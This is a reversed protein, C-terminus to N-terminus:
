KGFHYSLGVTFERPDGLNYTYGYTSKAALAAYYKNFANLVNVWVDFRAITYGTRFNFVDFGPYRGSNANDLYYSGQHQWEAGIRFGKLFAPKYMLETNATFHPAAAMEHGSYDMGKEINRIFTHKANTASLRFMWESGPRYTIGYEIGKHRTKGANQNQYSGDDQRVSIIENTGNLLYLSYDAYLKNGALAIWGGIEYNFFTQPQLYPVKVSNFLETVQPPVYGESYNAYFGIQKRNYALGLKPTFRNFNSSTSPAGTSASPPLANRFRYHYYDYRIAAVVKLGRAPTLEYNLYSALNSIGTSYNSLLSDTNSYSKYRGEADRQIRIYKAIYDSPSIDMSIGAVLKSNLWKIKQVQQAIVMYSNFSSNNVQGNALLPNLFNNTVYYSPNQKVSNNRFALTLQSSSNSNWERNLQSRIRLANVKRYNFTYLTTYNKQAFHASDLSGGGMDSYYDIYTISNSLNTKDNIKYDGRITVATKHFDTQDVPGNNRNAYYGSVLLGLKGFTNGARADVRKYGNNSGQISLMGDAVAPPAQTIINVAGGIAEAGYLSSAPGKIIEIQRAATMNMELLANHNYIGTTRIPVGDELYLFLSRTTMPQRISMEHQENGLNVMFVGSVKNLLYDLRNAKADQITQQSITAIAAPIETRKEFTRNGSVVIEQLKNNVPNLAVSIMRGDAKLTQSEYNVSSVIIEEHGATSISFIGQANTVTGRDTGKVMVSANSVPERTVNDFVKGQILTQSFGSLSIFQFFVMFFWTYIYRM